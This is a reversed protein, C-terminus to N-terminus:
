FNFNLKVPEWIIGTQFGRADGNVAWSYRAPAVVESSLSWKENINYRVGGVLDIGVNYFKYQENSLNQGSLFLQAGGYM